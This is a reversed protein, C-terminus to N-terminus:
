ICFDAKVSEQIELERDALDQFTASDYVQEIAVKAQQWLEILSCRGKLPCPKNDGRKCSVPDFPGDVFRIIRGVSLKRPDILLVYGGQVGRRSGVFGGQRMENLIIELFRPPVAQKAAIESIPLPGQGYHKALELTARVAYQCKQSISL